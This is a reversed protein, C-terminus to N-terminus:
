QQAKDAAEAAARSIAVKMMQDEVRSALVSIGQASLTIGVEAMYQAFRQVASLATEESRVVLMQMGVGNESMDVETRMKMRSVMEREITTGLKAIQGDNLGYVAGVKKSLETPESDEYITLNLVQKTEGKDALVPLQFFVRKMHGAVLARQKLHMLVSKLGDMDLKHMVAFDRAVQVPNDGQLCNGHSCVHAVRSPYYCQRRQRRQHCAVASINCLDRQRCRSALM